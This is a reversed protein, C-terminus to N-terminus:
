FTLASAGLNRTETRLSTCTRDKEFVSRMSVCLPVAIAKAGQPGLGHHKMVLETDNMHRIFYSVPVVGMVHCTEVYM